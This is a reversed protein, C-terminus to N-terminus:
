SKMIMRCKKNQSRVPNDILINSSGELRFILHLLGFFTIFLTGRARRIWLSTPSCQVSSTFRFNLNIHRVIRLFSISSEVQEREITIMVMFNALLYIFRICPLSAYAFMILCRIFRYEVKQHFIAGVISNNLFIDSFSM